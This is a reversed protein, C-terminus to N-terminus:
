DVWVIEWRSTYKRNGCRGTPLSKAALTTDTPVGPDEPKRDLAEVEM